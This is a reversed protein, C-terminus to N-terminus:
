YDGLVEGGNMTGLGKWTDVAVNNRIFRVSGDGSLANVGGVHRSRATNQQLGYDGATAPMLPDGNPQFYASNLIDPASSNPTNITMFKFVGDDNHIDGRWDNDAASWAVLFESMLLTNSLGDSFNNFKVTLPRSRDVTPPNATDIPTHGFPAGGINTPPGREHLAQGMNVVYNGRVRQYQSTSATQDFPRDSPCNYLPVKIGCLGNLTYDISGPAVFFDKTYDNANALNTQEIYPWLYMVFTQRPAKRSGLPLVGLQDHHSHIGLGWQKLNNQCKMRAAAERVKQVAPLLLGILIAIIAIVVLLEILTFGSVRSLRTRVSFELQSARAITLRM